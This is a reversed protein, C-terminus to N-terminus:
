RSTAGEEGLGPEGALTESTEMLEGLLRDDM